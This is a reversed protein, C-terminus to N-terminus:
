DAKKKLIDQSLIGAKRALGSLSGDNRVVVDWGDFGALASDAPDDTDAVDPRMIRVLAGGMSRIMDVENPFRVDTIIFVPPNEHRLRSHMFAVNIGGRIRDVWIDPYINRMANGFEIWLQRPTKGIRDLPQERHDLNVEYHFAVRMGYLWFMTEAMEKMAEAFALEVVKYGRDAFETKLFSAFADKGVRKRHGLGIILPATAM